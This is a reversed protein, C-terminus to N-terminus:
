RAIHRTGLGKNLTHDNGLIMTSLVLADGGYGAGFSQPDTSVVVRVLQDGIHGQVVKIAGEEDSVVREPNMVVKEVDTEEVGEQELLLHANSSFEIDKIDKYM